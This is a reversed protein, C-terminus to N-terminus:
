DDRPLSSPLSGERLFEAAREQAVTGCPVFATPLSPAIWLGGILVVGSLLTTRRASAPTMEAGAWETVCDM